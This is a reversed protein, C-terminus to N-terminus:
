FRSVLPIGAPAPQYVPAPSFQARAFALYALPEREFEPHSRLSEASDQIGEVLPVVKMLKLLSSRGVRKLPLERLYQEAQGAREEVEEHLRDLMRQRMVLDDIALADDVKAELFRRLAPLLAGHRRRFRVIEDIPIPEAPVPLLDELLASRVEAARIEGNIRLDVRGARRPDAASELGSLLADFVEPRDTAPVWKAPAPRAQCLSLALASMFEAATTREVMVWSYGVEEALGMAIVARMGSAYSLWKDAHIREVHADRYLRRRRDIEAPELRHLFREFTEPLGVAEDPFFQHVLEQRVLRRTHEDLQHPDAIYSEPVITGLQDWYLMMRTWWASSPVNIYPYYLAAQM